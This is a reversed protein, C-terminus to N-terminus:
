ELQGVGRHNWRWLGFIGKRLGLPKDTKEAKYSTVDREYDHFVTLELGRLSGALKDVDDPEARLPTRSTDGRWWGREVVKEAVRQVESDRRCAQHVLDLDNPDITTRNRSDGYAETGVPAEVATNKVSLTNGWSAREAFFGDLEDKEEPKRPLELKGDFLEFEGEFVGACALVVQAFAVTGYGTSVADVVYTEYERGWFAQRLGGYPRLKWELYRCYRELYNARVEVTDANSFPNGSFLIAEQEVVPLAKRGTSKSTSTAWPQELIKALRRSAALKTRRAAATEDGVIGLDMRSDADVALEADESEFSEPYVYSSGERSRRGQKERVGALQGKMLWYLENPSHGIHILLVAKKPSESFMERYFNNQEFQRMVSIVLDAAVASRSQWQFLPWNALADTVFTKNTSSCLGTLLKQEYLKTLTHKFGFSLEHEVVPRSYPDPPPADAPPPIPRLISSHLLARPVNEVDELAASPVVETAAFAFAWWATNDNATDKEEDMTKDLFAQVFREPLQELSPKELSPSAAHGTAEGPLHPHFIAAWDPGAVAWRLRRAWPLTGQLFRQMDYDASTTKKRLAERRYEGSVMADIRQFVDERLMMWYLAHVVEELSRLYNKQELFVVLNEFVRGNKQVLATLTREILTEAHPLRLATHRRRSPSAVDASTPSPSSQGNRTELSGIGEAGGEEVRREVGPCEGGLVFQEAGCHREVDVYARIGVPWRLVADCIHAKALVLVFHTGLFVEAAVRSGAEAKYTNDSLGELTAAFAAGPCYVFFPLVHRLANQAPARDGHFTRQRDSYNDKGNFQSDLTAHAWGGTRLGHFLWRNEWDLLFRDYPDFFADPAKQLGIPDDETAKTSVLSLTSFRASLRQKKPTKSEEAQEWSSCPRRKEMSADGGELFGGALCKGGVSEVTREALCTQLSLSNRGGSSFSERFFERVALPFLPSDKDGRRNWRTFMYDLHDDRDITLGATRVTARGLFEKGHSRRDSTGELHQSYEFIAGGDARFCAELTRKSLILEEFFLGYSHKYQNAVMALTLTPHVECAIQVFKEAMEGFSPSMGERKPPAATGWGYMERVLRDLVGEPLDVSEEDSSRGSRRRAGPDPASDAFNNPDMGDAERPTDQFLKSHSLAHLFAPDRSRDLFFLARLLGLRTNSFFGAYCFADPPQFLHSEERQTLWIKESVGVVFNSPLRPWLGDAGDGRSGPRLHTPEQFLAFASHKRRNMLLEEYIAYLVAAKDFSAASKGFVKMANAPFSSEGFRPSALKLRIMTRPDTFLFEDPIENWAHGGNQYLRVNWMDVDKRLAANKPILRGPATAVGARFIRAILYADWQMVESLKSAPYPPTARAGRSTRPPLLINM